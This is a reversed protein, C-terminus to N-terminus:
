KKGYYHNKCITKYIGKYLKPKYREDDCSIKVYYLVNETLCVERMPIKKKEFLEMIKNKSATHKRINEKNHGDIKAKPNSMNFIKHLKHSPPLHKNLLRFFYKGIGSIGSITSAGSSINNFLRDSTMECHRWRFLHLSFVRTDVLFSRPIVYFHFFNAAPTLSIAVRFIKLIGLPVVLPLRNNTFNFVQSKCSKQLHVGGSVM